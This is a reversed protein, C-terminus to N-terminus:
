VLFYHQGSNARVSLDLPAVSILPSATLDAAYYPVFIYFIITGEYKWISTSPLPISIGTISLESNTEYVYEEYCCIQNSKPFFRPILYDPCITLYSPDAKWIIKSFTVTQGPFPYYNIAANDDCGENFKYYAYFLSSGVIYDFVLNTMDRYAGELTMINPDSYFLM